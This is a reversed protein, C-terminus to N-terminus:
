SRQWLDTIANAGDRGGAFRVLAEIRKEITPHTSLLRDVWGFPAHDFYMGTVGPLAAPLSSHGDIKRLASIMGDANKTLMVAGADAVYERRRSLALNMIMSCGYGIFGVAHTAGRTAYALGTYTIEALGAAAPMPLARFAVRYITLIGFILRWLGEAASNVVIPVIGVMLASVTMLRVDRNRIHTLEHALVSEIEDRDLGQILGTTITVAYTNERVGSAFANMAESQIIRLTPMPVGGAISLNELLNWLEPADTRTLAQAGTAWDLIAQSNFYAFPLWTVMLVLCVVLLVTAGAVAQASADAVGLLGFVVLALILFVLPLVFPFAGLLAWSRLNNNWIHTQLGVSRPM